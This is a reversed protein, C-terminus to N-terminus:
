QQVDNLSFGMSEVLDQLSAPVTTQVEGSEIQAALTQLDSVSNVNYQDLFSAIDAGQQSTLTITQFDAPLSMGIMQALDPLDNALAVIEDGTLDGIPPDSPNSALKAAGTVFPPVAPMCGYVFVLGIAAFFSMRRIM